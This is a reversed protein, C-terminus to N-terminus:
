WIKLNARRCGAGYVSHGVASQYYREIGQTDLQMAVTAPTM